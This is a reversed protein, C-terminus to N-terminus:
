KELSFKKLEEKIEEDNKRFNPKYIIKESYNIDDFYSIQIRFLKENYETKFIEKAKKSIEKISYFNKIIFYMDVYDKWKARRGLAYAKMAALTLLDPLNIYNHLKEKAEIKFPYHLFTLQVSNLIFTFEGEEDRYVKDIELNNAGLIKKRIKMNDFSKKSFLDFDISERHGIYLAIATGGVLVFDQSFRNLIPLIKLQNKNLVELHM